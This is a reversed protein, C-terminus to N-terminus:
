PEVERWTINRKTLYPPWGLVLDPAFKFIEAPRDSNDALKRQFVVGDEDGPTPNMGLGSVSGRIHLQLDDDGPTVTNSGTFIQGDAFLLAEIDEVSSSTTTAAHGVTSSINIDGDSIAYFGGLGDTVQIKANINLDANKVFLIVRRDGFDIIDGVGGGLTLDGGVLSGDYTFYYYGQYLSNIVAALTWNSAIQSGSLSPTSIVYPSVGSPIKNEFFTYSYPDSLLVPTNKTQWGQLSPQNGNFDPFSGGAVSPVGSSGNPNDLIFVNQCPAGCSALPPIISSMNNGGATVDGGIVQWWAPSTVGVNNISAFCREAGEMIMGVRLTSNAGLTYATANMSYGAASARPTPDNYNGVGAPCPDTPFACISVAAPNSSTFNAQTYTGDPSGANDSVYYNQTDPLNISPPGVLTVSCKPCDPTITQITSYSSYTRPPGDRFSRVRYNYTTEDIVTTDIYSTLSTEAINVTPTCGPSISANCRYIEFGNFSGAGVSWSLHVRPNPGVPCSDTPLNLIPQPPPTAGCTVTVSSTAGCSASWFASVGFPNGTCRLGTSDYANCTIHYSGVGPCSWSASTSYSYRPSFPTTFINTWVETIAPSEYGELQNLDSNADSGSFNFVQAGGGFSMNSPGSVSCTPPVPGTPTPTPPSTPTATPPVPTPTGPGVTPTPTATPIAGTCDGPSCILCCWEWRYCWSGQYNTNGWADM